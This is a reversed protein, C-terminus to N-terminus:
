LLDIFIKVIGDHELAVLVWCTGFQVWWKEEFGSTKRDGGGQLIGGGDVRAGLGGEIGADDLHLINDEKM